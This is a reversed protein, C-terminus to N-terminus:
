RDNQETALHTLLTAVTESTSAVIGMTVALNVNAILEVIWSKSPWPTAPVQTAAAM